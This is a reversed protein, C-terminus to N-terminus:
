EAPAAEPQPNLENERFADILSFIYNILEIDVVAPTNYMGIVANNALLLVNTTGSYLKNKRNEEGIKLSFVYETQYVRGDEEKDKKVVAVISSLDESVRAIVNEEKLADKIIAALANQMRDVELKLKEQLEKLM